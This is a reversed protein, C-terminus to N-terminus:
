IRLLINFSFLYKFWFEIKIWFKFDSDLDLDAYFDSYNNLYRDSHQCFDLDSNPASNSDVDLELHSEYYVDSEFDLNTEM